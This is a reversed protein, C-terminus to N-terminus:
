SLSGDFSCRLQIHHCHVALYRSKTLYIIDKGVQETLLLTSYEM